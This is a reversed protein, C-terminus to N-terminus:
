KSHGTLTKTKWEDYDAMQWDWMTGVKAAHRYRFGNLWPVPRTLVPNLINEYVDVMREPASRAGGVNVLISDHVSLVTRTNKWGQKKFERDILIMSSILMIAAPTQGFCNLGQLSPQPYHLLMGPPPRLRGRQQMDYKIREHAARLEPVRKFWAHHMEIGERAPWGHEAAVSEGSRGYLFGLPVAKARLLEQDSVDDRRYKKTRPKGEVFFPRKFVEEYVAGYIYTGSEYVDLLWRINFQAAYTWLEIQDFDMSIFLDDDDDPIVISRLSDCGDTIPWTPWNHMSPSMSLRFTATGHAKNFPHIREDPSIRNFYDALKAKESTFDLLDFLIRAQKYKEEREPSQAIWRRLKVRADDDTTPKKARTKKDIKYQVPLKWVDYWLRAKQQWSRPNFAPGLMQEILKNGEDIQMQLIRSYLLAKRIDLRIGRARQEELIPLIPFGYRWILDWLGERQLEVFQTRAVLLTTINDMGNYLRRSVHELDRNYYPLNTYYRVCEPKLYKYVNNHLWHHALMTDFRRNQQPCIASLYYREHEGNHEAQVVDPDTWVEHWADYLEDKGLVIAEYPIASFGCIDMPWESHGTYDDEAIDPININEIDDAFLRERRAAERHRAVDEPTPQEIVKPLPIPVGAIRVAKRLHDTAELRFDPMRMVFAPHITGIWKRGGRQEVCGMREFISDSPHYDPHITSYSGINERFAVAGALVVTDARCRALENRLLPKCHSIESATPERNAPTLCKVQNTIFFEDRRVPVESLQRNFVRGSAGQLPGWTTPDGAVEDKGPNQAIYIIKARQPDGQGWCPGPADHLTCGECSAPKLKRYDISM